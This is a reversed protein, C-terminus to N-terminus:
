FSICNLVAWRLTGLQERVGPVEESCSVGPYELVALSTPAQQWLVVQLNEGHQLFVECKKSLIFTKFWAFWM